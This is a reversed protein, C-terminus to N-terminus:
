DRRFLPIWERNKEWLIPLTNNPCNHSFVVLAQSDSYGLPAPKCLLVGKKEAIDRAKSRENQDTFVKSQDGFCASSQDFSDCFHVRIEPVDSSLHEEVYHRGTEFGCVSLFFVRISKAKVVDGCENLFTQLYDSASHGSGVFDDVFVIAQIDDRKSLTAKLQGREVLSEQYIGNEDIYLKAFRAGSKGPGDLYSVVLSQWRKVQKHTVREVLGRVVIGHAVKMKNRVEDESYFRLHQLMRFMLRQDSKRGFQELWSRVDEASISRGKYAGWQGILQVIENSRVAAKEEEERYIRL